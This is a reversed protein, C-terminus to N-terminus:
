DQIPKIILHCRDGCGFRVHYAWPVMFSITIISPSSTISGANAHGTLRVESPVDVMESHWASFRTSSPVEPIREVKAHSVVNLKIGLSVKTM